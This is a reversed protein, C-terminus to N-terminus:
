CPRALTFSGIFTMRYTGALTSSNAVAGGGGCAPMRIEWGWASGAYAWRGYDDLDHYGPIERSVYRASAPSAFHRDREMSWQDFGDRGPLFAAFGVELEAQRGQETDTRDGTTV